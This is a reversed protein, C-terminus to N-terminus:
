KGDIYHQYLRDGKKKWYHFISREGIQSSLKDSKQNVRKDAHNLLSALNLKQAIYILDMSYTEIFGIADYKAKTTSPDSVGFGKDLNGPGLKTINQENEMLTTNISGRHRVAIITGQM